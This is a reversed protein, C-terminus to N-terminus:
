RCDELDFSPGRSDFSPFGSQPDWDRLRCRPGAEVKLKGLKEVQRREVVFGAPVSVVEALGHGRELQVQLWPTFCLVRLPIQEGGIWVHGSFPLAPSAWMYGFNNQAAMLGRINWIQTVNELRAPIDTGEKEVLSAALLPPFTLPAQGHVRSLASCPVLYYSPKGGAVESIGVLVSSPIPNSGPPRGFSPKPEKSAKSSNADQMAGALSKAEDDNLWREIKLFKGSGAEPSLRGGWKQAFMASDSETADPRLLKANREAKWRADVKAVAIGEFVQCASAAWTKWKIPDVRLDIKAELYVEDNGVVIDHGIDASRPVNTETPLAGISINLVNAPWNAFLLEVLEAASARQRRLEGLRAALTVGDITGDVKALDTLIGALKTRRVTVRAREEFLDEKRSVPALPEYKEILGQTQSIVRDRVLAGDEVTADSRIFSGVAQMVAKRIADERASEPTAGSGTVEIQITEDTPSVLINTAIAHSSQLFAVLIALCPLLLNRSM